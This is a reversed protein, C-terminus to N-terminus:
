AVSTHTRVLSSHFACKTSMFDLEWINVLLNEVICDTLYPLVQFLSDFTVLYRRLLSAVWSRIVPVVEISCATFSASNTLSAIGFLISKFFSVKLVTSSCAESQAIRTVFVEESDTISIPLTKGFGSRKM